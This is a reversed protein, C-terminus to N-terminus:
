AVAGSALPRAEPVAVPPTVSSAARLREQRRARDRAERPTGMYVERTGMLHDFWPFTVCWNANQNPAMHHDYHWRLHERAWDPDLHSRRHVYHYYAAWAWLTTVFFPAPVWLPAVLLCGALLAVAEKGQAHWGWVSRQYDKDVHDNRRCAGHHEHWHFSWFSARKRGLGHLLHKHVFWEVGNGVAMGLVIGWM